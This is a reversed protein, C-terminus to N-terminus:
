ITQGATKRTRHLSPPGGSESTPRGTRTDANDSVHRNNGTMEPGRASDTNIGSRRPLPVQRTAIFAGHGVKLLRCCLLRALETGPRGKLGAHFRRDRHPPIKLEAPLGDLSHERITSLGLQRFGDIWSQLSRHEISARTATKRKGSPTNM